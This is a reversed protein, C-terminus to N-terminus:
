FVYPIMRYPVLQCYQDWYSGYKARCKEEDRFVRHVLLVVLFVFYLFPWLGHGWGSSCWFFAAMLEFVYNLHRAQGWCGSLLLNSAKGSLQDRVTLSRVPRGWLQCKGGSARFLQKEYDVRYNMLISAFGLAATLLATAATFQSPHAVLFFSSYTYFSPVWVLCGWCIYYGARDLTIDLTTFYGTEWWFFKGIYVSQLLVNTVHGANWVGTQRVSALLFAVILVQWSMMGIRCNTWQKVDFGLLRPHIEMGRYFEYMIPSRPLKERTQPKCIGMVLLYTCLLFAFLNLSGLIHAMNDYVDLSLDPYVVHVALYTVMTVTYYLFGNASYHPIYGFSTAPGSYSESPIWLFVAAWLMFVGNVKWAYANGLLRDWQFPVTPNGRLLLLQVALTFFLVFIPPVIHYRVVDYWGPFSGM